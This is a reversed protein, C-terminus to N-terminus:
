SLSAPPARLSDPPSCVLSAPVPEDGATRTFPVRESDAAEAIADLLTAIEVSSQPASLHVRPPPTECNRSLGVAQPSLSVPDLRQVTRTLAPVFLLVVIVLAFQLRSFM